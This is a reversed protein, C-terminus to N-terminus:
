QSVGGERQCRSSHGRGRRGHGGMEFSNATGRLSLLSSSTLAGQAVRFEHLQHVFGGSVGHVPVQADGRPDPVQVPGSNAPPIWTSTRDPLLACNSRFYPSECACCPRLGSYLVRDTLQFLTFLVIRRRSLHVASSCRVLYTPDSQWDFAFFGDELSGAPSCETSVNARLSM